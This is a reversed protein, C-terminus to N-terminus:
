SAKANIGAAYSLILEESFDKRLVEGQLIGQRMVLIRDCMGILETLDSSIMVIGTGHSAFEQLKQYIEVRAGVDVGRTPEDFIIVKPAISMWM